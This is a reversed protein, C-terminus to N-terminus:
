LDHVFFLPPERWDRALGSGATFGPGAVRATTVVV